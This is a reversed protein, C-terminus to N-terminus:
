NTAAAQVTRQWATIAAATVHVAHTHGVGVFEAYTEKSVECSDECVDRLSDGFKPRVYRGFSKGPSPNEWFRHWQLSTGPIGVELRALTLEATSDLMARFDVGLDIDACSDPPVIRASDIVMGDIPDGRLPGGHFVPVVHAPVTVDQLHHIIRGLRVAGDALLAEATLKRFRRHMHKLGLLGRGISDGREHRRDYFHYNRLRSIEWWRDERGSGIEIQRGTTVNLPLLGLEPACQNYLAVGLGTLVPHSKKAYAGSLSLAMVVILLIHHQKM